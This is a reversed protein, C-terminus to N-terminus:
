SKRAVENRVSSETASSLQYPEQQIVSCTSDPFLSKISEITNCTAILNEAKALKKTIKKYEESEHSLPEILNRVHQTVKQATELEDAECLLPVNKLCNESTKIRYNIIAHKLNKNPILSWNDTLDIGTKPDIYGQTEQWESIAALEYSHGTHTAYPNHMLEHLIPCSFYDPNQLLKESNQLLWTQTDTFNEALQPQPNNKAAVIKQQLEAFEEGQALQQSHNILLETLDPDIRSIPGIIECIKELTETKYATIASKLNFNIVLEQNSEVAFNAYFSCMMAKEVNSGVAIFVPDKFLVIENTNSKNNIFEKPYRLLDAAQNILDQNGPKM